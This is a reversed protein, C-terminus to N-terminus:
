VKGSTLRELSFTLAKQPTHAKGDFHKSKRKMEVWALIEILRILSINKGLKSSCKDIQM